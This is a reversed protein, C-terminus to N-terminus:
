AGSRSWWPKVAKWSSSAVRNPTGRVREIMTRRGQRVSSKYLENITDDTRQSVLMEQEFLSRSVSRSSSANRISAVASSGPRSRPATRWCTPTEYCGSRPSSRARSAFSTRGAVALRGAPSRGVRRSSTARRSAHSAKKPPWPEETSRRRSNLRVRDSPGKWYVAPAKYLPGAKALCLEGTEQFWLGMQPM